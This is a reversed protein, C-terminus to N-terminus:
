AKEVQSFSLEVPTSRGFISVSVKLKSKEFNVDEVTGSFEKFPGDIVRVVEGPAFTYKPRPHEVGEQVQQLIAQAEQDSIPVPKSGSGGVFGSVKPVSKVLHWAEDSMIMHVLVYGPFFKRESTRKQGNRLEVVQETPVEIDGFHDEMGARRIYERLSEQVHNEFGSYAQIVFWQMPSEVSASEAPAAQPTDEDITADSM